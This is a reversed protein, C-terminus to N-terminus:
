TDTRGLPAFGRPGLRRRWKRVGAAAAVALRRKEVEVPHFESWFFPTSLTFGCFSPANLLHPTSEVPPQCFLRKGRKMPTQTELDGKHARGNRWEPCVPSPKYM